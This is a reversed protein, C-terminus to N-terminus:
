FNTQILFKSVFDIKRHEISMHLATKDKGVIFDNIPLGHSLLLKFIELLDPGDQYTEVLVVFIKQVVDTSDNNQLVKEVVEKAYHSEGIQNRFVRKLLKFDQNQNIITAIIGHTKDLNSYGFIFEKLNYSECEEDVSTKYQLLLKIIPVHKKRVALQMPTLYFDSHRNPDAGQDLAERVKDVDGDKIAKRLLQYKEEEVFNM